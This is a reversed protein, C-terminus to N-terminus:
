SLLLLNFKIIVSSFFFNTLQIPLFVVVFIFFVAILIGTETISGTLLLHVTDEILSLANLFRGLLEVVSIVLMRTGLETTVIPFDANSPQSPSM